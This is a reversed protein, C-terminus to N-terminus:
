QIIGSGLIQEGEYFVAAQGPTIAGQPEDFIVRGSVAGGQSKGHIKLRSLCERHAYRIKTKLVFEKGPVLPEMPHWLIDTVEMEKQTLDKKYCVHLTNTAPDIRKVYFPEPGPCNIGRRQGITFTHLGNHTGIVRGSKEKIEGPVPEIGTKRLIFQSFNDEQIFCIDQSEEKNVPELDNELAIQRVELKTFEALPFLINELQGASLRALFYSQDKNRDAGKELRPRVIGKDPFSVPNVVRAYHGTAMLDAGLKRAEAALAGFKIRENCILCPNPTQGRLYTSIFYDVVEQEFVKKLDVRIIKFDLQKELRSLDLSEKEYGISFHIGFLDKFKKKILFGSVLSDIGGSLAVAVVPSKM